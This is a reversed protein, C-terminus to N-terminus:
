NTTKQEDMRTLPACIKHTTEILSQLEAIKLRPLLQQQNIM